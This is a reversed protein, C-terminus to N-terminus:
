IYKKRLSLLMTSVEQFWEEQREQPVSLLNEIIERFLCNTVRPCDDCNRCHLSPKIYPNLLPAVRPWTEDDFHSVQRRLLNGMHSRSLGCASAMAADTQFNERCKLLANYIVDDIIKM